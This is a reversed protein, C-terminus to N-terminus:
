TRSQSERMLLASREFNEWTEVFMATEMKLTTTNPSTIM